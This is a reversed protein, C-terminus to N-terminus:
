KGFGAQLKRIWDKWFIYKHFKKGRRRKRESLNWPNGLYSVSWVGAETLCIFHWRHMHFLRLDLIFKTKIKKTSSWTEDSRRIKSSIRDLWYEGQSSFYRMLHDYLINEELNSIMVSTKETQRNQQIMVKTWYFASQNQEPKFPGARYLQARHQLAIPPPLFSPRFSQVIWFVTNSSLLYTTDWPCIFLIHSLQFFFQLLPSLPDM